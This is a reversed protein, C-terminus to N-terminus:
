AQHGSPIIGQTDQSPPLTAPMSIITALSSVVTSLPIYLNNGGMCHHLRHEWGKFRHQGQSKGLGISHPLFSKIDSRAAEERVM